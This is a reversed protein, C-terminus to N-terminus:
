AGGGSPQLAETEAVQRHVDAMDLARVAAIVKALAKPSLAGSQRFVMVGERFAMLTPISRIGLSGALSQQSETDVKGFVIDPHAQAAADFVPGFMKCPGCWEAWLDVLTIGEGQVTSGFTDATLEVTTM